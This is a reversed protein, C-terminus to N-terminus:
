LRLAPPDQATQHSTIVQFFYTRLSQWGSLPFLLHLFLTPHPHIFDENSNLTVAIRETYADREELFM